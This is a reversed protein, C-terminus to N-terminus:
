AMWADIRQEVERLRLVIAKLMSLAVSPHDLLFSQFDDAPIQLAEVAGVAKVTAMRRGPAILAMEGFFDGAKLIHFRGGVDVRAEGGTIVYMGDASDGEEVIAQDADFSVRHGCNMVAQLDEPSLDGFFRTNQLATITGGPDSMPDLHVPPPSTAPSRPVAPLM